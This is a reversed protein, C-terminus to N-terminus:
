FAALLMVEAIEDLNINGDHDKVLVSLISRTKVEGSLDKLAKLSEELKATSIVDSRCYYCLLIMVGKREMVLYLLVESVQVVEYWPNYNLSFTSDVTYM